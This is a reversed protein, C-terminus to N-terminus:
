VEWVTVALDPVIMRQLEPWLRSNYLIKEAETPTHNPSDTEDPIIQLSGDAIAYGSKNPSVTWCFVQVNLRAPLSPLDSQLVLTSSSAVVTCLLATTRGYFEAVSTENQLAGKGCYVSLVPRSIKCRCYTFSSRHWARFNNRSCRGNNKSHLAFVTSSAKSLHRVRLIFIFNETHWHHKDYFSLPGSTKTQSTTASRYLSVPRWNFFDANPSSRSM